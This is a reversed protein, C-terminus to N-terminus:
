HHVLNAYILIMILIRVSFAEGAIAGFLKNNNILYLLFIISEALASFLFVMTAKVRSHELTDKNKNEVPFCLTFVM